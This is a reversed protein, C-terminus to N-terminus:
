SRVIGRERRKRSGSIGRKWHMRQGGGDVHEQGRKEWSTGRETKEQIGRRRCAFPALEAGQQVRGRPRTM